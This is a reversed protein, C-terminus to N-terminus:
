GDVGTVEFRAGGTEAETVTISWDHASAIEDVIHLGIGRHGDRSSVGWEFVADREDPSIGPGDDEVFFGESLTGVRVTVPPTGHDIANTFLNTLLQQFAHRDAIIIRNSDVELTADESEVTSWVSRAIDGLEVADVDEICEDGDALLEITAVLDEIRELAQRTREFHEPDGTEEALDLSGRAVTIPSAFDHRLMSSVRDLRRAGPDTLSLDSEAIGELFAALHEAWLGDQETFAGIERDTAVFLGVSTIPVIMVSRIPQRTPTADTTPGASTSRVATVDAFIHSQDIRGGDGVLDRVLDLRHSSDGAVATTEARPQLGNGDTALIACYDADILSEMLTVSAAYLEAESRADILEFIYDHLAQIDNM